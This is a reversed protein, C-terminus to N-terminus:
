LTSSPNPKNIEGDESAEPFKVGSYDSKVAGSNILRYMLVAAEYRYLPENFALRTTDFGTYYIKLNLTKSLLLVAEGPVEPGDIYQALVPPVIPYPKTARGIMVAAELRTIERDPQITGDPYGAMLGLQNARMINGYGPNDSDLDSFSNEATIPITNKNLTKLLVGAFQARTVYKWPFFSQGDFYSMIGQSVVADVEKYAPFDKQIDWFEVSYAPTKLFAAAAFLLLSIILKKM